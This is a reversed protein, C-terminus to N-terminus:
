GKMAERFADTTTRGDAGDEGPVLVRFGVLGSSLNPLAANRGGAALDRASDRYCGGRQGRLSHDPGGDPTKEQSRIVIPDSPDAPDAADHLAPEWDLCWERVNGLLDFFGLSGPQLRAVQHLRGEANEGFWARELLVGAAPDAVAIAQTDLRRAYEWEVERPLRAGQLAPASRSLWRCFATAAYWTVNVVPYDALWQPADHGPDFERYMRKTMPVISLRFPEVCRLVCTLGQRGPPEQHHPSLGPPVTRWLSRRGAKTELQGFWAPPPPIHDYLHELLEMALQRAEPHHEATRRLVREIFFLDNGDRTLCRIQDLVRLGGVVDGVLQMVRDLIRRREEWGGRLRLIECLVDGDIKPVVRLLRHAIQENARSLELLLREPQSAGAVVMSIPEFWRLADERGRDVLQALREAYDPLNQWQENLQEATLADRFSDHLFRWEGTVDQYPLLLGVDNSVDILFQRVGDTWKPLQWISKCIDNHQELMLKELEALTLSSLGRETFSHALRRLASRVVAPNPIARAGPSHGRNLLLHFYADFIRLPQRILEQGEALLHAIISLGLYTEALYSIGSSPRIAALWREAREAAQSQPLKLRTAAWNTLLVRQDPISLPLIELQCFRLKKISAPIQYPRSSVIIRAQPWQEALSSLLVAADELASEPLQDLGDLLVTVRGEQGARELRQAMGDSRRIRSLRQSLLHPLDMQGALWRLFSCYLPLPAAPDKALEIAQRQLLTSKGAGPAASLLWRGTAWPEVGTDIALIEALSMAASREPPLADPRGSPAVQLRPELYISELPLDRMWLPQLIIDQRVFERYVNELDERESSATADRPQEEKIPVLPRTDPQQQHRVALRPQRDTSPRPSLGQLALKHAQPISQGDGLLGYFLEAFEIAVPDDLLAETGIAYDIREVLVQAAAWSMCANLVVLRPPTTLCSLIESLDEGTLPYAAGQDNLLRLERARGHGSFHIIDPENKALRSILKSRKLVFERQLDIQDRWRTKEIAESIKESEEHIAIPADRGGGRDGGVFFIKLKAM